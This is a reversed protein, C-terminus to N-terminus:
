LSHDHRIRRWVGLQYAFRGIALFPIFLLWRPDSGRMEWAHLLTVAMAYPFGFLPYFPSRTLRMAMRSSPGLTNYHKNQVTLGSQWGSQWAQRMIATFHGRAHDHLVTVNANFYSLWGAQQLRLGFDWDESALLSTDFGQVKEFAERRVALAGCGLLRHCSFIQQTASFLVFDACRSWFDNQTSVVRCGVAGVQPMTNLTSHLTEMWDAPPICDDDIFFLINGRAQTAGLNRMHGPPHLQGTEAWAIHINAPISITTPQRPAAIIIETHSLSVTQKALAGLIQPLRTPRSCPIVVSHSISKIPTYAKQPQKFNM